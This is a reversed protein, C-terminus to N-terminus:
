DGDESEDFRSIWPYNGGPGGQCKFRLGNELAIGWFYDYDYFGVIKQGEIDSLTFEDQVLEAPILVSSDGKFDTWDYENVQVLEGNELEAVLEIWFHGGFGKVIEPYRRTPTQLLKKIRQGVISDPADM